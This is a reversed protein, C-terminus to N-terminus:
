IENNEKAANEVFTTFQTKETKMQSEIKNKVEKAQEANELAETLMKQADAHKEVVEKHMGEIEEKIAKVDQIKSDLIKSKSLAIIGSLKIRNKTINSQAIDLKDTQENM